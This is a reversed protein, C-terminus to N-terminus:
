VHEATMTFIASIKLDNNFLFYNPILDMEDIKFLWLTNLFVIEFENRGNM